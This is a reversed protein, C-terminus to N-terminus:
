HRYLPLRNSQLLKQKQRLLTLSSKGPQRSQYHQRHDHHRIGDEGSYAASATRTLLKKKTWFYDLKADEINDNDIKNHDQQKVQSYAVLDDAVSHSHSVPHKKNKNNNNNTTDLVDNNENNNLTDGSTLKGRRNALAVKFFAEFGTKLYEPNTENELRKLREAGLRFAARVRAFNGLSVFRGM